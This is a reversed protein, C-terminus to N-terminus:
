LDELNDLFKKRAIEVSTYQVVNDTPSTIVASSTDEITDDKFIGIKKLVTEAEHDWAIHVCELTDIYKKSLDSLQQKKKQLKENLAEVEKQHEKDKKHLESTLDAIQSRLLMNEKIIDAYKDTMSEIQINVGNLAVILKDKPLSILAEVDISRFVSINTSKDGTLVSKIKNNMDSLYQKTEANRNIVYYKFNSLHLERQAYDAVKSANLLVRGDTFRIYQNIIEKIDETKYSLPRGTNAM